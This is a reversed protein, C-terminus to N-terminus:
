QDAGSPKTDNHAEIIDLFALARNRWNHVLATSCSNRLMQSGNKLRTILSGFEEPTQVIHLIDGFDRAKPIDTSIVEMGSNLCHYYRLPDLYRTLRTNTVYPALTVSYDGLIRPLDNNIYSGHYILNLHKSILTEIHKAITPDNQSIQGYIHFTLNPHTQATASLFSFDLRADLSALILIREFDHTKRAIPTISSANGLHFSAPFLEKLAPAAHVTFDSARLLLRQSLAAKIRSYGTSGYLLDDHMDLCWLGGCSKKLLFNFLPFALNTSNFVIISPNKRAERKLYHFFSLISLTRVTGPSSLDSVVPRRKLCIYSVDHGLSQLEEALPLRFDTEMDRCTLLLIRRRKAATKFEHNQRIITM